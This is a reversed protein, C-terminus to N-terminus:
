RVRDLLARVKADKPDIKAAADLERKANARMDAALYVEALVLRFTLEGPREDVARRAFDAAAKLDGKALLLAKAAESQLRADDPAGSAARALSRAGEEHRGDRMLREGEDRYRKSLAAAARQSWVRVLEELEPSPSSALALRYANAAAVADNRAAAAEAAEVHRLSQGRVSAAASEAALRQLAQARAQEDKAPPTRAPATPFRGSSLRSALRRRREDDAAQPGDPLVIPLVSPRESRPEPSSARPDDPFVAPLVSPHTSRQATQAARTTAPEAPATRSANSAGRPPPPSTMTRLQEPIPRPAATPVSDFVIRRAPTPAVGLTADYEARPGKRSLTAEADTIRKFIAELKQKFSGVEKRFYKDPHFEAALRFYASKIAKKEADRPVGLVEYHDADPLWYFYDLIRRRLSAEIDVPEDLEADTYRQPGGCPPGAVPPDTTPADQADQAVAAAVARSGPQDSPDPEGPPAPAPEGTPAPPPAGAAARTRPAGTSVNTIAGLDALKVLVELVAAGLGTIAAIDAASTHGDIRSLM